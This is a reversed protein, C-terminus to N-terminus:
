TVSLFRRGWWLGPWCGSNLTLSVGVWGWNVWCLELKEEEGLWWIRSVDGSSTEIEVPSCALERFGLYSWGRM